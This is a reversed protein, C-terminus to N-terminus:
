GTTRPSTSSGSSDACASRGTPMAPTTSTTPGATTRIRDDAYGAVIGEIDETSANDGIILEWDAHTQALLSEIAGPLWRADNWVPIFVSFRATM